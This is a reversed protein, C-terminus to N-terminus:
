RVCNASKIGIADLLEGHIRPAGWLPNAVSMQRILQRIKAPVGPRGPRTRSRWRWFLRFGARHWRVVTDPQVIALAERTKPFLQCVWGLVM